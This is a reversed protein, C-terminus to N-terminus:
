GEISVDPSSAIYDKIVKSMGGGGFWAGDGGPIARSNLFDEAQDGADPVRNERAAMYSADYWGGAMSVYRNFRPARSKSNIVLM